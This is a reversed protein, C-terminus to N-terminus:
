ALEVLRDPTELRYHMDSKPGKLHHLPYGICRLDGSLRLVASLGDGVLTTYDSQDLPQLRLLFARFGLAFFACHTKSIRRATAARNAPYSCCTPQFGHQTLVAADALFRPTTSRKARFAIEQASFGCYTCVNACVNTLYL